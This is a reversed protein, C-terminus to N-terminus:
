LSSRGVAGNITAEKLTAKKRRGIRRIPRICRVSDKFFASGDLVCLPFRSIFLNTENNITKKRESGDASAMAAPFGNRTSVENRGM